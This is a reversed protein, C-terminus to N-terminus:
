RASIALVFHFRVKGEDWESHAFEGVDMGWAKTPEYANGDLDFEFPGVKLGWQGPAITHPWTFSNEKIPYFEEMTTPEAKVSGRLQGPPGTVATGLHSVGNKYATFTSRIGYRDDPYSPQNSDVTVDNWAPSSVLTFGDPLEEETNDAESNITFMHKYVMLDPGPPCVTCGDNHSTSGPSTRTDSRVEQTNVSQSLTMTFLSTSRHYCLHLAIGTVQNAPDWKIHININPDYDCM